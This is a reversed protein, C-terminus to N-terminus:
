QDKHLCNLESFERKIIHLNKPSKTLGNVPSSLKSLLSLKNCCISICKDRLPFINESNKIQM